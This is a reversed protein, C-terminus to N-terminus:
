NGHIESLVNEILLLIESEIIETAVDYGFGKLQDQMDELSLLYDNLQQKYVEVNATDYNEKYTFVTDKVEDRLESFDNYIGIKNIHNEKVEEITKLVNLTRMNNEGKSTITNTNTYTKNTSTLADAKKTELYLEKTLRAMHEFEEITKAELRFAKIPMENEYVTLHGTIHEYGTNIDRSLTFTLKQIPKITEM